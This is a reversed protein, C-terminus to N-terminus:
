PKNREDITKLLKKLSAENEPDVIFTGEIGEIKLNLSPKKKLHLMGRIVDLFFNGSVAMVIGATAVLSVILLILYVPHQNNPNVREEIGSGSLLVWILFALALVVLIVVIVAIAKALTSFFRKLFKFM